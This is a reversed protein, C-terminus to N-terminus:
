LFVRRQHRWPRVIGVDGVCGGVGELVGELVGGRRAREKSPVGKEPPALSTCHGCIM